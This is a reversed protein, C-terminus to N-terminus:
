GFTKFSSEINKDIVKQVSEVETQLATHETEFQKIEIDLRKDKTQIALLDADYKAKKIDLDTTDRVELIESSTSIDQDSSTGDTNFKELHLGRNKIQNNIWDKNNLTNSEDSQTTYGQSMKTYLNTYYDADASAVPTSTASSVFDNLANQATTLALKAQTYAPNPNSAGGTSPLSEWVGKLRDREAEAALVQSLTVVTSGTRSGTTGTTSGTRTDTTGTTSGTRTGTTDTRDTSSGDEPTLILPRRGGTGSTGGAEYAARLSSAITIASQWSGYASDKATKAEADSQIITSPTNNVTNQATSVTNQLAFLHADYASKTPYASPYNIVTTAKNPNVAKLFDELSSSSEFATKMAQTVLIKNKSDNLCYEGCLPSNVGTLMDYTIDSYVANGNNFSTLGVLKKQNLAAVYINTIEETSRALNMKDQCKQQTAFEIDSMRATISLLRGQSAALGM